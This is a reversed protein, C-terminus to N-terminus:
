NKGAPGFPNGGLGLSLAQTLTLYCKDTLATHVLKAACGQYEYTYAFEATAHRIKVENGQVYFRIQKQWAWAKISIRFNFAM